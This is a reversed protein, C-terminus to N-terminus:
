GNPKKEEKVPAHMIDWEKLVRAAAGPGYRLDFYLQSNPDGRNRSLWLIDNKDLTFQIGTDGGPKKSGAKGIMAGAAAGANEPPQGTSIGGRGASGFIGALGIGLDAFRSRKQGNMAEQIAQQENAGHWLLAKSYDPVRKAMVDQLTQTALIATTQDTGNLELMSQIVQPTYDGYSKAIGTLFNEVADKDLGIFKLQRGLAAADTKTLAQPNSIGLQRQAALRASIVDQMSQPTMTRSDGDGMYQINQRARQVGDFHRVANAPDEQRLKLHSEAANRAAAYTKYDEEYGRVGPTPELQQLGQYIQDETMNEMGGVANYYKYARKRDEEWEVAKDEGQTAVVMDRTLVSNPTGSKQISM